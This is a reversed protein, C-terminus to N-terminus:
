ARLVFFALLLQQPECVEAWVVFECSTVASLLTGPLVICHWGCCVVSSVALVTLARPVVCCDMHQNWIGGRLWFGDCSTPWCLM